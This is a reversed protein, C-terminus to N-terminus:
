RPFISADILGCITHGGTPEHRFQDYFAAVGFIDSPTIETNRCVKRLIERPLYRYERQIAQLVPILSEKHSGYQSLITRIM